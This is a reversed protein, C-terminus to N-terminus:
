EPYMVRLQYVNILKAIFVTKITEIEQLTINAELFQDEKMQNQVIRNVFDSINEANPEQISKSAAEVSDAMMLIATEKSFPKPGKYRFDHDLIDADVSKAKMLFYYVSTTGHHTRIFDIIRDPLNYKKAIEIGDLVHDIIIRTSEHPELDNHPSYSTSQNESFYAPNKLKGIDHFLAGVRILLANAGIENAAAEAINAVQLSHHFTGPASNALERLLPSNTDSLELLSVDSVLGFIKEYIYILPHVFLTALGNMMFLGLISVNLFRPSGESILVFSIYGLMYVLTIVGVSIFLNARKYLDPVTLTAIIGAIMQLFIYEFSNPVIFGILLMAILHTFLALRSDFFTKIILPLICIPVAYILAVDYSVVVNVLLLMLLLNTFLFSVKINNEYEEPRFRYLFVFLLLLSIGALLGYGLLIWNENADSWLQSQYEKKLSQLIQYKETEVIEGKAIIRVGKSMVGRSPLISRLAGETIQSTLEPALSINPRLLSELRMFFVRYVERFVSEKLKLGSLNYSRNLESFLQIREINGEVLAVKTAEDYLLEADRVGKQYYSMVYSIIQNEVSETLELTNLEFQIQDLVQDVVSPDVEFYIPTQAIIQSRENSMEKETKLIPFDFPALLTEYQWPKGKQFEYKFGSGKPFLFLVLGLTTLFLLVKFLISQYRFFYNM